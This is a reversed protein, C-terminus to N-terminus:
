KNKSYYIMINNNDDYYNKLFKVKLFIKFM